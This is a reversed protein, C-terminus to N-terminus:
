SVDRRAASILGDAARCSIGLRIAGALRRLCASLSIDGPMVDAFSAISAHFLMPTIFMSCYYDGPTSFRFSADDYASVYSITVLIYEDLM